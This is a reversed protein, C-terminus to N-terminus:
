GRIPLQPGPTGIRLAAVHPFPLFLFGAQLHPGAPSWTLWRKSVGEASPGPQAPVLGGRPVARAQMAPGRTRLRPARGRHRGPFRRPRPKQQHAGRGSVAGRSGRPGRKRLPRLAALVCGEERPPTGTLASDSGPRLQQSASFRRITARKTM